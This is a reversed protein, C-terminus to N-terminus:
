LQNAMITVLPCWFFFEVVYKSDAYFKSILLNNIRTTQIIILGVIRCSVYDLM